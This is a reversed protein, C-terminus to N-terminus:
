DNNLREYEERMEDIVKYATEIDECENFKDLFEKLTNMRSIEMQVSKKISKKESDDIPTYTYEFPGSPSAPPPPPYPFPNPTYPTTTPYVFTSPSPTLWYPPTTTTTTLQNGIAGSTTTITGLNLPLEPQVWHYYNQADHTHNLLKNNEDYVATEKYKIINDQM